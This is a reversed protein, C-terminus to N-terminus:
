PEYTEWRDIWEQYDREINLGRTLRLYLEQRTPEHRFLKRFRGFDMSVNGGSSGAKLVLQGTPRWPGQKRFPMPRNGGQAASPPRSIVRPCRGCSGPTCIVSRARVPTLSTCNVTCPSPRPNKM